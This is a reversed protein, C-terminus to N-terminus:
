KKKWEEFRKMLEDHNIYEGKKYQKESEMVLGKDTDSLEEWWDGSSQLLEKADELLLENECKDILQHLEQKINANM